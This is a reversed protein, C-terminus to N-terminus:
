LLLDGNGDTYRRGHREGLRDLTLLLNSRATASIESLLLPILHEDVFEETAFAVLPLEWEWSYEPRKLDELLWNISSASLDDISVAWLEALVHKAMATRYKPVENFCQVLNRQSSETTAHSLLAGLRDCLADEGQAYLDSLWEAWWSADDLDIYQEPGLVPQDWTQLVAEALSAQQKKLLRVLLDPRTKWPITIGSLGKVPENDLVPDREVLHDLEAFLDDYDHVIYAILARMLISDSAKASVQWRLEPYAGILEHLACVVWNLCRHERLAALLASVLGPAPVPIPDTRPEGFSLQMYLQFIAYDERAIVLRQIHAMADADRLGSLSESVAHHVLISGSRESISIRDAVPIEQAIVAAATLLGVMDSVEEGSRLAQEAEEDIPLEELKKILTIAEAETIEGNLGESFRALFNYGQGAELLLGSLWPRQGPSVKWLLAAAMGGASEGRQTLAILSAENEPAVHLNPLTEMMSFSLHNEDLDQDALYRIARDTWQTRQEEVYNLARFTMEPDTSIIENFLEDAETPPLFGLTLLLTQDWDRRSLCRRVASKDVSILKALYAAAFYEAVSHHFFALRRKPTALLVGSAIQHEIFKRVETDSPLVARLAAVAQPLPISLQGSDIMTYAIRGFVDAFSLEGFRSQSDAEFSGVLQSYVDHITPATLLNLKGDRWSKFYLPRQLLALTDSDIRDADVQRATLQSLVYEQNIEDLTLAPIRLAELEEGFRTTLVVTCGKSKELFGALDGMLGDISYEAPVENVGDLYFVGNEWEFLDEPQVDVPLADAIMTEIDGQYDRLQVMVPVQLDEVNPPFEGLCIAELNEALERVLQSAMFSKGSGPAGELVLHGSFSRLTGIASRQWTLPVNSASARRKYQPVSVQLPMPEVTPAISGLLRRSHRVLALLTSSDNDVTQTSPPTVIQRSAIEEILSLLGKHRGPGTSSPDTPYSVLRLGYARSWHEVEFPDVDPMLAYHDPAHNGFTASFHDKALFFDPDRLGFGIFVVPRSALLVKTAELVNGRLGHLSQYDERTLITSDASGIDGHPKFVFGEARSQVISAVELRQLATVVDFRESNRVQRLTQELLDDYNTTIFCKSGLGAIARHLPSPATNPRLCANRLFEQRESPTLQGFGYSAAQLLDNNQLARSVPNPSRGLERLFRCLDELLGFWTPLGSWASVGSGIFLITDSRGIVAALRDIEADRPSTM